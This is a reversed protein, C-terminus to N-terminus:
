SFDGWNAYDLGVIRKVIPHCVSVAPLGCHDIFYQIIESAVDEHICRRVANGFNKMESPTLLNDYIANSSFPVDFKSRYSQCIPHASNLDDVNYKQVFKITAQNIKRVIQRSNLKDYLNFDVTSWDDAELVYQDDVMQFCQKEAKRTFVICPRSGRSDEGVSICITEFVFHHNVFANSDFIARM